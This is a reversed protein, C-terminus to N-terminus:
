KPNRGKLIVGADTQRVLFQGIPPQFYVMSICNGNSNGGAVVEFTALAIGNFTSTTWRIVCNYFGLALNALRIPRVFLGTVNSRETPFMALGSFIRTAGTWVDMTPAADPNVPVKSANRCLAQIMIEDGLQHRGNYIM